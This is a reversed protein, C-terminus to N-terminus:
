RGRRSAAIGAAAFLFLVLSGPEPILLFKGPNGVNNETSAYSGYEDGVLARKWLAVNQAGVAAVSLPNGSFGQTRITGPIDQDGYILKDVLASTNDFIHISDNRSLNQNNLGVVKVSAPLNWATRFADATREAIIVIEKAQVVGFGGISFSGAVGNADDFSWGTMNIPSSGINMLEVFEGSDGDTLGNYEWETIRIQATAVAPVFLCACAALTNLIRGM